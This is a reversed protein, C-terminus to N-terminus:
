PRSSRATTSEGNSEKDQQTNDQQTCIRYAARLGDVVLPPLVARAMRKGAMVIRGPSEPVGAFDLSEVLARRVDRCLAIDNPWSRSEFEWRQRQPLAVESVAQEFRISWDPDLAAAMNDLELAMQHWERPLADPDKQLIKYSQNPHQHFVGAIYPDVALAGGAVVDALMTRELLLPIAQNWRAVRPRLAAARFAIVPPIAVSVLLSLGVILDWRISRCTGNNWDLRVPPGYLWGGALNDLDHTSVAYAAYADAGPSADLCSVAREAFRPFIYDDDQLWSFYDGTALKTLLAFNGFAGINESNRHYRVRGNYARVVDPTDDTSANDSIIVEVDPLSQGLASDIARRLYAARNYTPIAITFKPM